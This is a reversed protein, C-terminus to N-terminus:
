KYNPQTVAISTTPAQVVALGKERELHKAIMKSIDPYEEADLLM